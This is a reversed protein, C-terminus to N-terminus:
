QGSPRITLSLTKWGTDFAHVLEFGVQAIKKGIEKKVELPATTKLLM